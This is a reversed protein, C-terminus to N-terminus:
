SRKSDFEEYISVGFILRVCNYYGQAVSITIHSYYLTHRIVNESCSSLSYVIPYQFKGQTSKGFTMSVTNVQVIYPIDEHIYVRLIIDERQAMEIPLFPTCVMRQGLAHYHRKIPIWIQVKDKIVSTADIVLNIERDKITCQTDSDRNVTFLQMNFPPPPDIKFKTITNAKTKLVM